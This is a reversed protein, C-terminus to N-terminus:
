PNDERARGAARRHPGADMEGRAHGALPVLVAQIRQRQGNSLGLAAAVGPELIARVGSVQLVLQDLRELQRPALAASLKARLSDLVSRAGRNREGLPLDRMRWLSLDAQDVAAGVAVKQESSLGLENFVSEAHLFMTM